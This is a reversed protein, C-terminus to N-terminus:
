KRLQLNIFQSTLKKKKYPAEKITFETHRAGSRYHKVTTLTKGNHTDYKQLYVEVLRYYGMCTLSSM